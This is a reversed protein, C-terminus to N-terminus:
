DYTFPESPAPMIIGRPAAMQPEQLAIGEYRRARDSRSGLRTMRIEPFAASLNRGFIQVTGPRDRGAEVCWNKWAEYLDNAKISLGPNVLCWDTVFAKVPSSLEEMEEVLTEGSQPQRFHGREQLRKWGEIAWVLIGPLELVLRDFLNLDEKGYFSKTLRIILLRGVLATATDPVQPLENSILMLKTPLKGSWAPQHKRDIDITSEGSINLLREVIDSIGQRGGMRADSIVALPKGILSAMGFQSAFAALTPGAVNSEGILARLVRAITDKGARRPGILTLIKQRRTDTTLCYGFWEQLTDISERDDGLVSHLFKHWEVSHPANPDFDYSLSYTEFFRPTSPTMYAKGAAYSPLHILFNKCPLIDNAPESTLDPFDGCLWSSFPTHGALITKSQLVDIM